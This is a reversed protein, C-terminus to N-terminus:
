TEYSERGFPDVVVYENTRLKQVVARDVVGEDVWVTAVSRDAVVAVAKGM